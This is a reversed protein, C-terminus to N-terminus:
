RVCRLQATGGATVGLFSYGADFDITWTFGVAPLYPSSSWFPGVTTMPFATPDTAPNQRSDDVITQLETVSPLRWGAGSLGAANTSCYTMADAWGYAMTPPAQQWTLGTELDLVTGTASAANAIMYRGTPADAAGPRTLAALGVLVVCGTLAHRKGFSASRM